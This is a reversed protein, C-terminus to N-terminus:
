SATGNYSADVEKETNAIPKKFVNNIKNIKKVVGSVKDM